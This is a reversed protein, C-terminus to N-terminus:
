INGQKDSLTSSQRWCLEPLLSNGLGSHSSLDQAALLIAPIWSCQRQLIDDPINGLKSMCSREGSHGWGEGHM